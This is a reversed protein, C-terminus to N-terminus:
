HQDVQTSSAEVSLALIAMPNVFIGVGVFGAALGGFSDIALM